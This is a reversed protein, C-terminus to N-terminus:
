RLCWVAFTESPGGVFGHCEGSLSGEYSCRRGHAGVYARPPVTVARRDLCRRPAPSRCRRAHRRPGSIEVYRGHEDVIAVLQARHLLVDRGRDSPKTTQDSEVVPTRDVVEDLGEPQDQPDIWSTREWMTAGDDTFAEWHRKMRSRRARGTSSRMSSGALSRRRRTRTLGAALLRRRRASTRRLAAECRRRTRKTLTESDGDALARWVAEPSALGLLRNTIGDRTRTFVLCRVGRFQELLVAFLFLRSTLWKNGKGLNIVAVEAPTTEALQEFLSQASGDFVNASTLQRLDVLGTHYQVRWDPDRGAGTRPRYRPGEDRFGQQSARRDGRRRKGSATPAPCGRCAGGDAM